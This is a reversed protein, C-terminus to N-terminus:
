DDADDGADDSEEDDADDEDAEDDTEGGALGNQMMVSMGSMIAVGLGKIEDASIRSTYVITEGERWMMSASGGATEKPLMAKIMTLMEREKDSLGNEVAPLVARLFGMLSFAAVYFPKKDKIDPLTAALRASPAFACSAGKIGFALSEAPGQAVFVSSLTQNTEIDAVLNTWVTNEVVNTWENRAYSLLGAVDLTIRTVPPTSVCALWSTKIGHRNLIEELAQWQKGANHRDSLGSDEAAAIALVAEKGAFALPDKGLTKLGVKAMESGKVTKLAVNFDIGLDGVRVSMAIADIGDVVSLIAERDEKDQVAACLKRLEQMGRRPVRFKVLRDGIPREATAIDELAKEVMVTRDSIALWKGDKSFRVYTTSKDDKLQIFGDKEVAESHHKLFKEKTAVTPYLLAMGLAKVLNTPNDLQKASDIYLPLYIAAGARTPGLKEVFECKNIGQLAMPAMMANGSLEAFKSVAASLGDIGAVQVEGVKEWAASAATSVVLLVAALLKKM